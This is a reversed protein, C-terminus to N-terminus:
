GTFPVRLRGAVGVERVGVRGTCHRNGPARVALIGGRAPRLQFTARGRRNTRASASVGAGRAILRVGVLTRGFADIAGVGLRLRGPASATRHSLRLSRCRDQTPMIAGVVRVIGSAHNDGIHSESASRRVVVVNVLAGIADARVRVTITVTGGAPITGLDCSQTAASCTGQSWEGSVLTMGPGVFEQVVVNTAPVNGENRVVIRTTFM